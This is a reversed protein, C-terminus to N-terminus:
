LELKNLKEFDAKDIIIATEENSLSLYYYDNNKSNEAIRVIQKPNIYWNSHFDFGETYSKIKILKM